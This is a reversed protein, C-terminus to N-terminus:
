DWDEAGHGAAPESPSGAASRQAVCAVFRGDTEHRLELLLGLRRAVAEALPLGLGSHVDDGGAPDKRWFRASMSRVDEPTLGPAPNAVRLEVRGAASIGGSVEVFTGSPAYAIANELLNRVITVLEEADSQITLPEQLGWRLGLGRKAATEALPAWCSRVVSTVDVAELRPAADSGEAHALALLKEVVTEMRAAIASADSFFARTADEDAPWRGGVEALNKLEAVPTRLEHAVDASFRREDAFSSALRRLLENLGRVISRLELPADDLTVPESLRESDLRGVNSALRELPALGRRLALRLLLGTAAALLAAALLNRLYITRVLGDLAARGRAVVLTAASIRRDHLPDGGGDGAEEPPRPEFRLEVARGSEGDPLRLDRFRIGTGDPATSVLDRGHLSESRGAVAGGADWIEFYESGGSVSFEPMDAKSFEFELGLPGHETLAALSQATVLLSRDFERELLRQVFWASVLGTAAALAFAGAVLYAGLYLRISRM